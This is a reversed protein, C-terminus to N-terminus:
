TIVGRFSVVGFTKVFELGPNLEPLGPVFLNRYGMVRCPDALAAFGKLTGHALKIGIGAWPHAKPLGPWARLHLFRILEQGM